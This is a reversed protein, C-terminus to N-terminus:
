ALANALKNIAGILPYFFLTEEIPAGLADTMGSYEAAVDGEKRQIGDMLSTDLHTRLEQQAIVLARASVNLNRVFSFEQNIAFFFDIFANTEKLLSQVVEPKRLDAYTLKTFEDNFTAPYVYSIAETDVPRSNAPQMLAGKCTVEKPGKREYFLTLGSTDYTQEYVKEFIVRALKGLMQDDSSIITLLKSGTGSFTIAGPLNIGRHKMLQAIHYLLATYFLVFVVKLDEDKSLMGNFSLMSKAKVDNSREISFWFAMIDESRNTDLM